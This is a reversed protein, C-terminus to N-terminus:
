EFFIGHGDFAGDGPKEEGDSTNNDGDKGVGDSFEGGPKAEFSKRIKKKKNDDPKQENEAEKEGDAEAFLLDFDGFKDM